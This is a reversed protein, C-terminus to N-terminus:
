NAVVYMISCRTDIEFNFAWRLMKRVFIEAKSFLLNAPSLVTEVNSLCAYLVSGYMLVSCVLSNVLQIKVRVNTIGM